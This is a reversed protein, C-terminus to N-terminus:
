LKGKTSPIGKVRSNIEVARSMARGFAKFIAEIIHHLEEGYLLNVHLTLRAQDAFARFFEKVLGVNFDGIKIRRIKANYSLFSRGSIDVAVSVLAEDMPITAEGYRRISRKDGLAKAFAQGLCIGIDEVTHHFDVALDGKAKLTLNFLGHKAFLELMHDFFPIGTSIIGKGEGELVLSLKIDTEKTKRKIEAKRKKM